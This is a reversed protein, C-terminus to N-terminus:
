RSGNAACPQGGAITLIITPNKGRRTLTHSMGRPVVAYWGSSITQDRGALTLTAEGAVVYLM